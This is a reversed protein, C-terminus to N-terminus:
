ICLTNSHIPNFICFLVSGALFCLPATGIRTHQTPNREGWNGQRATHSRGSCPLKNQTHMCIYHLAIYSQKETPALYFKAQEKTNQTNHVHTHTHTNKHPHIHTRIYLIHTCANKIQAHAHRHTVIHTHSHIDTHVNMNKYKHIKKCKNKYQIHTHTHTHTHRHAPVLTQQQRRAHM